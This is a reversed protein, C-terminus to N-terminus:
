NGGENVFGMGPPRAIGAHTIMAMTARHLKIIPPIKYATM